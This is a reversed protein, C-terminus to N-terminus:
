KVVYNNTMGLFLQELDNNVIVAKYIDINNLVLDRIIRAVNEKSECSIILVNAIRRVPYKTRLVEFAIQNDNTEVSLESKYAKLERLESITGQYLLEGM